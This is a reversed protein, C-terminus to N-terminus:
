CWCQVSNLFWKFYLCFDNGYCLWMLAKQPPCPNYIPFCTVNKANSGKLCCTAPSWCHRTQLFFLYFLIFDIHYFFYFFEFTEETFLNNSSLRDVIQFWFWKNWYIHWYIHLVLFISILFYIYVKLWHINNEENSCQRLM